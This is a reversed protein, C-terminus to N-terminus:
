EPLPLDRPIAVVQRAREVYDLNAAVRSLAGAGPNARAAAVIGDLDGYTNVLSAATKEGIGKVGPLGDSPDGRLVAYDAYARGPIHYRRTVEAEDVRLMETVGKIPYLVYVEPDRVLQYLDRDGSVVAVRTGPRAAEREALTGIVDEAECAEFGVVAVGLGELLKFCYVSQRGVEVDAAVQEASAASAVRAAKYEPLLDVRWAPRWDEDVACALRAPDHDGVLRALMGLFGHAANIPTGDPARM